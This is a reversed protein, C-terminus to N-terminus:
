NPRSEVRTFDRLQLAPPVHHLIGIFTFTFITSFWHWIFILALKFFQLICRVLNYSYVTIPATCFGLVKRVYLPWSLPFEVSAPPHLTAEGDGDDADRTAQGPGGPGHQSTNAQSHVDDRYSLLYPAALPCLLSLTFQM